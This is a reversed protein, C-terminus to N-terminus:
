QAAAPQPAPPRQPAIQDRRRVFLNAVLAQAIHEAMCQYGLDNLHFNDDAMMQINAKTRAIFEMAQYRRVYLIHEAEAVRNVAKRIEIYNEDRAFKPTYQLGVLVVDINHQKLLHVTSTLTEEFDEVRVHSVADNTGVQWLVLDPRVLAAESLLREATVAAVEGSVGRNVITVDVDKWVKELIGELQSPYTKTRDSAGVGVTSSSGIALIKLKRDKEIKATVNSLPSPEAIEKTPLSCQVSMVPTATNVGSASIPAVALNPASAPVSPEKVPVQALGVSSLGVSSLCAFATAGALAAAKLASSIDPRLKVISLAM